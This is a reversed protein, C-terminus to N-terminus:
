TGLLRQDRETKGTLGEPTRKRARSTDNTEVPCSSRLKEWPLNLGRSASAKGRRRKQMVRIFLEETRCKLEYDDPNGLKLRLSAKM